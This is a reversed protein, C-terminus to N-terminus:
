NGEMENDLKDLECWAVAVLLDAGNSTTAITLDEDCKVLNAQRVELEIRVTMGKVGGM